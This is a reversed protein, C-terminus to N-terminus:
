SSFFDIVKERNYNLTHIILCAILGKEEELENYLFERIKHNWEEKTLVDPGLLPCEFFVGQVALLPSGELEIEPKSKSHTAASATHVRKEAELEQRVQAKITAMSRFLFNKLFKLYITHVM